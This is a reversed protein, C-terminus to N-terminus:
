IANLRTTLHVRIRVSLVVCLWLLWTLSSCYLSQNWAPCSAFAPINEEDGIRIDM